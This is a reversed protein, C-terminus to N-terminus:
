FGQTALLIGYWKYSGDPNQTIYLIAEGQGDSGWGTSFLAAAVNVDPGFMDTAPMGLLSDLDPQDAPIAVSAPDPLFGTLKSGAENPPLEQGESQWYGIHFPSDMLLAMLEFDRANVADLIATTYGELTSLQGADQPMVPTFGWWTWGETGRDEIILVAQSDGRSGWGDVLMAAAVYVDNGCCLTVDYGLLDEMKSGQWSGDAYELYSTGLEHMPATGPLDTTKFEEIAKDEPFLGVPDGIVNVGGNMLTKLHEWDRHALTQFLDNKFVFLQETRESGSAPLTPPIMETTEVAIEPTVPPETVEINPPAATTASSGACALLMLAAVSAPIILRQSKM